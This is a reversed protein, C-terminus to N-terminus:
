SIPMRRRGAPDARRTGPISALGFEWAEFLNEFLRFDVSHFADLDNVLRRGIAELRLKGAHRGHMRGLRTHDVAMAEHQGQTPVKLVAAAHDGEIRADMPERPRLSSPEREEAIVAALEQVKVRDDVARPQSRLPERALRLAIRGLPHGAM